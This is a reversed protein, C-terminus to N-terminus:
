PGFCVVPILILAPFVCELVLVYFLYLFLPQCHFLTRIFYPVLEHVLVILLILFYPFLVYELVLVLLLILIHDFTSYPGFYTGALSLILILVFVIRVKYFLSPFLNLVLLLYLLWALIIVITIDFKKM